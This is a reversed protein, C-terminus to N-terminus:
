TREAGLAEATRRYDSLVNRVRAIPVPLLKHRPAGGEALRRFGPGGPRGERGRSAYDAVRPAAGRRPRGRRRRRRAAHHEDGPRDRRRDHTRAGLRAIACRISPLSPAVIPAAVRPPATLYSAPSM